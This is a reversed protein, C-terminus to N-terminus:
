IVIKNKRNRRRRCLELGYMKRMSYESLSDKPNQLDPMKLERAEFTDIIREKKRDM